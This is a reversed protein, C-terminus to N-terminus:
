ALIEVNINSFRRFGRDFTVLRFGTSSAFAAFYADTEATQGKPFPKTIRRWAAELDEPESVMAFRNDRRLVDWGRWFEAASMVDEKLWLSNTLVRLAGMQAVRCILVSEPENQEDLWAVARTSHTHREHLLAVLVNVDCLSVMAAFM